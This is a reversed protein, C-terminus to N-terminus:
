FTQYHLRNCKDEITEYQRKECTLLNSIRNIEPKFIPKDENIKNIM